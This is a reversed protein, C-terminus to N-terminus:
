LSCDYSPLIGYSESHSIFVLLTAQSHMYIGEHISIACKCYLATRELLHLLGFMIRKSCLLHNCRATFKRVCPWCSWWSKVWTALLITHSPLHLFTFITTWSSQKKSYRLSLWHRDILGLPPLFHQWSWHDPITNLTFYCCLDPAKM